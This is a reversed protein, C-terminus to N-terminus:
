GLPKAVYGYRLNSRGEGYKDYTEKAQAYRDNELAARQAPTYDYLKANTEGFIANKIPSNAAQGLPKFGYKKQM